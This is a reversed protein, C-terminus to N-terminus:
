NGVGARAREPPSARAAETGRATFIAPRFFTGHSSKRRREEGEQLPLLPRERGRRRVEVGEAVGQGRRAHGRLEGGGERLRNRPRPCLLPGDAGGEGEGKRGQRPRRRLRPRCRAPRRTRRRAHGCGFSRRPPPARRRPPPRVANELPSISLKACFNSRVKQEQQKGGVAQRRAGRRKRLACGTCHLALITRPLAPPGTPLASHRSRSEFFLLTLATKQRGRRSEGTEGREGGDRLGGNLLGQRADREHAPHLGVDDRVPTTRECVKGKRKVVVLKRERV